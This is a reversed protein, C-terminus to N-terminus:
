NEVDPLVRPPHAAVRSTATRGNDHRFLAGFHQTAAAVDNFRSGHTHRSTVCNWTSLAAVRPPSARVKTLIILSLCVASRAKGGPGEVLWTFMRSIMTWNSM